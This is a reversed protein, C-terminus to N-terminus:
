YSNKYPKSLIDSCERSCPYIRRTGISSKHHIGLLYESPKEEHNDTKYQYRQNILWLRMCLIHMGIIGVHETANVCREISPDGRIQIASDDFMIGIVFFSGLISSYPSRYFEYM